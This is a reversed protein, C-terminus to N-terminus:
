QKIATVIPAKQISEIPKDLVKQMLQEKLIDKIGAEDKLSYKKDMTYNFAKLLNSAPVRTIVRCETSYEYKLDETPMAFKVCQIDNLNSNLGTLAQVESVTITVKEADNSGSVTSIANQVVKKFETPASNLLRSKSDEEAKLVMSFRQANNNTTEFTGIAIYDGNILGEKNFRDEFDKGIVRKGKELHSIVADNQNEVKQQPTTSCGVISLTILLISIYITKM